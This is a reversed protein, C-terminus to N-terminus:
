THKKSFVAQLRHVLMPVVILQVAIGPLGTIIAGTIYAIPKMSIDVMSVMGYVAFTAAFRGVLMAVLLSILLGRQRSHFLYGSVAGYVALEMVMVPLIPMAPPMGTLFGSLLPTLVGVVFGAYGGLFLGAILVPIHMPLFVSGLAGFFHFAIPLIVGFAVLVSSTVLRETRSVVNNREKSEAVFFGRSIGKKPLLGEHRMKPYETKCSM